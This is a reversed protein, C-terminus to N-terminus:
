NDKHASMDFQVLRGDEEEEGFSIGMAAYDPDAATVEIVLEGDEVKSYYVPSEGVESNWAFVNAYVFDFDSRIYNQVNNFGMCVNSIFDNAVECGVANVVTGQPSAPCNDLQNVVGDGDDDSENVCGQADVFSNAPTGPCQDEGNTVGDGDSDGAAACVSFNDGSKM